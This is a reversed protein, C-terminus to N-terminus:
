AYYLFIVTAIEMGRCLNKGVGESPINQWRFTVLSSQRGNTRRSRDDDGREPHM